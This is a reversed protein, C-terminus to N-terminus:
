QLIQRPVATDQSGIVGGEELMDMLRAARSYGIRLKRQLLSTSAKGAETVVQKAGEYLDSDDMVDTINTEGEEKGLLLNELRSIRMDVASQAEILKQQNALVDELM